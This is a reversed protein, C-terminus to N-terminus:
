QKRRFLPITAFAAGLIMLGLMSPEPIPLTSFQIYDLYTGGAFRLEGTQGAYVSVDGGWIWNGSPTGGLLSLPIQQGAFTVDFGPILQQNTLYRISQTGLPIMGTQAISCVAFSGSLSGFQLAVFCHGHFIGSSPFDLGWIGIGPNDLFMGNHLAWDIQNTSVYGTWGPVAQAWYVRGYPDGPIPIFTGNEFDLNQFTGQPYAQMTLMAALVRVLHEKRHHLMM